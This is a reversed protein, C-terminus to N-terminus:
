KAYAYRELLYNLCKSIKYAVCKRKWIKLGKLLMLIRLITSFFMVNSISNVSKIGRGDADLVKEGTERPIRRLYLPYFSEYIIKFRVTNSM